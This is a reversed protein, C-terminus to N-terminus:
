AVGAAALALEGTAKRRRPEQVGLAQGVARVADGFDLGGLHSVLAFGEGSLQTATPVVVPSRATAVAM